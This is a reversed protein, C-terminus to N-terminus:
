NLKLDEETLLINQLKYEHYLYIKVYGESQRLMLKLYMTTDKGLIEAKLDSLFDPYLYNIYINLVPLNYRQRFNVANRILYTYFEIQKFRDEGSFNYEKGFVRYSNSPMSREFASSTVLNELSPQILEGFIFLEDSHMYERVSTNYEQFLPDISKVFELTKQTPIGDNEMLLTKM